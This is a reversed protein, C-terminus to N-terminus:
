TDFMMVDIMGESKVGIKATTGGSVRNRTGGPTMTTTTVPGAGEPLTKAM